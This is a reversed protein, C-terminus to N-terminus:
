MFQDWSDERQLRIFHAFSRNISGVAPRHGVFFFGMRQMKRMVGSGTYVVHREREFAGNKGGIFTCRVGLTHSGFSSFIRGPNHYREM